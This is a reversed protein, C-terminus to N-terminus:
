NKAVVAVETLDVPGGGIARAREVVFQPGEEFAAVMQALRGVARKVDGRGGEAAAPPKQLAIAPDRTRLFDGVCTRACTSPQHLIRPGYPEIRVDRVDLQVQAGDPLPVGDTRM